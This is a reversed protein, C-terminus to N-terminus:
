GREKKDRYMNADANALLDYLKSEDNPVTNYFGQSVRVSMQLSLEEM